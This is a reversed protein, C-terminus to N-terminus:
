RPESAEGEQPDDLRLACVPCGPLPNGEEDVIQIVPKEIFLIGLTADPGDGVWEARCKASISVMIPWGCGDCKAPHITRANTTPILVRAM